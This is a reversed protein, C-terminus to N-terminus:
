PGGKSGILRRIHRVRNQFLESAEVDLTRPRPIPVDLVEMIRGPRPSMVVIRDSLLVAEPISHTVFVITKPREAWIRLLEIAMEERTLADLAGFPEDMLLISPDHVLARCIGARQQMGGSLEHPFRNEFGNLGVLHLLKMAQRNGNEDLRDMLQLPFTVNRIVNRWPMLTPQQFVMGTDERPRAVLTDSIRIEGATAPTLGAILRLLTSKGCGSPGVISVFENESVLLSVGALAEVEELDTTVFTKSVSKIDISSM